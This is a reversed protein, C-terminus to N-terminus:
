YYQPPAIDTVECLFWTLFPSFITKYWGKVSMCEKGVIEGWYKKNEGRLGLLWVLVIRLYFFINSPTSTGRAGL